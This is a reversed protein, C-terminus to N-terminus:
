MIYVFNHKQNISQRGVEKYVEQFSVRGKQLRKDQKKKPCQKLFMNTYSHDKQPQM